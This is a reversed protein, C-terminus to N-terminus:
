PGIHHLRDAVAPLRQHHRRGQAFGHPTGTVTVDALYHVAVQSANYDASETGNLIMGDKNVYNTYTVTRITRTADAPDPAESVVATGGGAGNYTGTAPLPTTTPVYTNLKPAWTPNPTSEDPAVLGTSTTYKLNAIVLRSVTPDYRQVGLLHRCRRPTGAPCAGPLTVTARTSCRSATRGRCNTKSRRGGVGPQLRQDTPTCLYVPAGVYVPLFNQRVIRTM